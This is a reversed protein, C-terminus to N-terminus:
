KKVRWTNIVVGASNIHKHDSGGHGQVLSCYRRTNNQVQYSRCSTQTESM